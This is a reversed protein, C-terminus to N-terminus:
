SPPLGEAKRARLMEAFAEVRTKLAEVSYQRSDYYDVELSLTPMETKEEMWKKAFHSTQALPRCNFVYNWIIGDINFDKVVSNVMMEARKIFGYNSHYWGLRMENEALIEGVTKYKTEEFDDVPVPISFLMAANALGAEEYMHEIRPDSFHGLLIMVRPAGKEVVGIGKEIRAKVEEILLALAGPGEARSRGTCGALLFTALEVAASSIPLPDAKMLHTLQTLYGFYEMGIERAKQFSDLTVEVGLFEKVKALANNM